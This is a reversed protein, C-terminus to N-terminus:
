WWPPQEVIGAAHDDFEGVCLLDCIEYLFVVEEERCTLAESKSPRYAQKHVVRNRLDAVQIRTLREIANRVSDNEILLIADRPAERHLHDATIAAIAMEAERMTRPHRRRVVSNCLLNRLNGFNYRKIVAFLSSQLSNLAEVGGPRRTEAFFPRYVYNSYAFNALFLEWAQALSAVALMYRKAAIHEDAAFIFMEYVANAIDGTLWFESRCSLCSVRRGSIPELDRLDERRNYVATIGCADCTATVTEYDADSVHAM